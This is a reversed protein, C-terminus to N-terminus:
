GRARRARDTSSRARAHRLDHIKRHVQWPLRDVVRRALSPTDSPAPAGVRIVPRGQSRRPRRPAPPRFQENEPGPQPVLSWDVGSIDAARAAVIDAGVAIGPLSGLPRVPDPRDVDYGLFTAMPAARGRLRARVDDTVVSAWRQPRDPDIPADSRTHGEVVRPAGSRRQIDHHALVAPSWPEGLWDLLARMTTEPETVLDEYRVLCFREPRRVAEHVLRKNSRVWHRIAKTWPYRFREHLSTATGGPHRVIGVFVADPFLRLARDVHWVHFPTKEGWRQKGRASAYAEFMGGFYTALSRDNDEDTLDLHEHWEGGFHWYPVWEHALALRLFGTEQPIAIHEHSDLMLRLLTSGSGLSGVIFIPGRGAATDVV